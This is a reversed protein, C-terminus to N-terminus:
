GGHGAAKIAEFFACREVVCVCIVLHFDDELAVKVNFVLRASLDLRLLSIYKQKWLPTPNHEARIIIPQREKHALPLLIRQSIPPFPFVLISVHMITVSVITMRHNELSKVVIKGIANPKQLAEFAAIM